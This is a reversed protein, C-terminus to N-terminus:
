HLGDLGTAAGSPSRKKELQSLAARVEAQCVVCGTEQAAALATALHRRAKADNGTASELRASATDLHFRALWDAARINKAKDLAQEAEVTKGHGLLVEAQLARVEIEDAGRNEKELEAIAADVDISGDFQQSHGELLAVRSLM